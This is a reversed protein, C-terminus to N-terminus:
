HRCRCRAKPTATSLKLDADVTFDWTVVAYVKGVDPESRCVVM